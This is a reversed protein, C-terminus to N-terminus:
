VIVLSAYFDNTKYKNMAYVYGNSKKTMYANDIQDLDGIFVVKSGLGVGKIISEMEYPTLNQADDIIFFTNKLSKEFTSGLSKIYFKKNFLEKYDTNKQFIDEVLNLVNHICDDIDIIFDEKFDLIEKTSGILPSFFLIKEYEKLDIVQYLAGTLTLFTKGKNIPGSIFCVSSSKDLIMNLIATQMQDRPTINFMPLTAKLLKFKAQDYKVPFLEQQYELFMYKEFSLEKEKKIEGLQTLELKEKDTILLKKQHYSQDFKEYLSEVKINLAEAKIILNIDNTVLISSPYSLSLSLIKADTNNFNLIDENAKIDKMLDIKLVVDHILVGEFLSGLSRYAIIEQFFTRVSKGKFGKENKFNDLEELVVLPIIVQHHQFSLFAYPDLIIVNTDLIYTNM